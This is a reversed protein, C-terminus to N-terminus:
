DTPLFSKWVDDTWYHERYHTQRERRWYRIGKGNYNINVKRCAGMIEKWLVSAESETYHTLEQALTDLNQQLQHSDPIEDHHRIWALFGYISDLELPAAITGDEREVFERALFVQAKRELWPDKIEGKGPDTFDLDFLLKLTEALKMNDFFDVEPHVSGVNDDGYVILAVAVWFPFDCESFQRCYYYCMSIYCYCCFSNFWSTLYNGSSNGKSNLFSWGGEVHVTNVLSFCMGRCVVADLSEPDLNMAYILYEGAYHSMVQETSVDMSPLDGGIVRSRSYKFIKRYTFEWDCNHVNIGVGCSGESRHQKTFSIYHGFFMKMAICLVVDGACFIRTKGAIVRDLTRLEDKLINTVIQTIGFGMKYYKIVLDVCQRLKPHIERTEPNWLDRRKKFGFTKMIHGSASDGEMSEITKDESGFVADEMTLWKHKYKSTDPEFGKMVERFDDDWKKRVFPHHCAGEYKLRKDHYLGYPSVTVGKDDKFAKLKGPAVKIKEPPLLDYIPSKVFKTKDPKGGQIKPKFFPESGRVPQSVDETFVESELPVITEKFQLVGEVSKRPSWDKRLIPMIVADSNLQCSHIGLFPANQHSKATSIWPFGCFGSGGYGNEVLYYDTNVFDMRAGNKLASSARFSDNMHKTRGGNTFKYALGKDDDAMKMLRVAGQLENVYEDRFKDRIDKAQFRHSKFKIHALDRGCHVGNKHESLLTVIVDSPNFCDYTGGLPHYVKMYQWDPCAMFMHSVVMGEDNCGLLMNSSFSSGDGKFIDIVVSNKRVYGMHLKMETEIQTNANLVGKTKAIYHPGKSSIGRNYRSYWAQLNMQGKDDEFDEIFSPSIYSMASIVAKTLGYSLGFTVLFIGAGVATWWALDKWSLSNRDVYLNYSFAKHISESTDHIFDASYTALNIAVHGCREGVYDLAQKIQESAVNTAGILKRFGSAVYQWIDNIYDKWTAPEKLIIGDDCYREEWTYNLDTNSVITYLVGETTIYSREGQHTEEKIWEVISSLLDFYTAVGVVPEKKNTEYNFIEFNKCGLDDFSHIGFLNLGLFIHSAENRLTPKCQCVFRGGFNRDHLVRYATQLWYSISKVLINGIEDASKGRLSHFFRRWNVDEMMHILVNCYIVNDENVVNHNMICNYCPRIETITGAYHDIRARQYKEENTSELNELDVRRDYFKSFFEWMQLKGKGKILEKAKRAITASGCKRSRNLQLLLNSSLYEGGVTKNESQIRTTPLVTPQKRVINRDIENREVKDWYRDWPRSKANIGDVELLRDSLVDVMRTSIETFTYHQGPVLGSEQLALAAEMPFYNSYDMCQFDWAEDYNDEDNVFKAKRTVRLPFHLRRIFAGQNTVGIDIFQELNTTIMCIKSTFFLTGKSFIEAATLPYAASDIAKIIEIATTCRDTVDGSQFTESWCCVLQEGYNDWFESLEDRNYVKLQSWEDAFLTPFREVVDKRRRKIGNYVCGPLMDFNITKGQGPDGLLVVGLPVVRDHVEKSATRAKLYLSDLKVFDAQLMPISFSAFLKKETVILRRYPKLKEYVKRVKIATELDNLVRTEIHESRILVEMEMIAETLEPCEGDDLFIKRNILIKACENIIYKLSDCLGGALSGWNMAGRPLNIMNREGTALFVVMALMSCSLEVGSVQLTPEYDIHFSQLEGQEDGITVSKGFLMMTGQKILTKLFVSFGGLITFITSVFLVFGFAFLIQALKSDKDAGLVNCTSQVFSNLGDKICHVLKIPGELITGAAKYVSSETIAKVIELVNNTIQTLLSLSEKGDESSIKDAINSGKNLIDKSDAMKDPNSVIEHVIELAKHMQLKGKYEKPLEIENWFDRDNRMRLFMVFKKCIYYNIMWKLDSSSNYSNYKFKKGKLMNIAFQKQIKSGKLSHIIHEYFYDNSAYLCCMKIFHLNSCQFDRCINQLLRDDKWVNEYDYPLDFYVLKGQPNKIEVTNGNYARTLNNRHAQMYEDYGDYVNIFRTEKYRCFADVFISWTNLNKCDFEMFGNEVSFKFRYYIECNEDYRVSRYVDIDPTLEWFNVDEMRLYSQFKNFYMWLYDRNFMFNGDHNYFYNHDCWTVTDCDYNMSEEDSEEGTIFHFVGNHYDFDIRDIGNIDLDELLQILNRRTDEIRTPLILSSQGFNSNDSSHEAMM